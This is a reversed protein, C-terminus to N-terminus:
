AEFATLRLLVSRSGFDLFRDYGPLNLLGGLVISPRLHQRDM